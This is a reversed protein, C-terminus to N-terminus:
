PTPAEATGAGDALPMRATFTAGRGPGPSSAALEGGHARVLERAITLGIGSGSGTSERRGPVRYFREFVAVVDAADLGVGTDSVECVATGAAATVRVDIRGGADTARVANGVLNTVVQAWRDPDALVPVVEDALTVVWRSEPTSPRLACGSPPPLSWRM